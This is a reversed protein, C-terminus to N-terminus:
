LADLVQAADQKGGNPRITLNLFPIYKLGDDHNAPDYDPLGRKFGTQVTWGTFCRAVAQIDKLSYGSKVGLTHLELLERAYNENAVGNRNEKNDLYTLMAPSHACGTLMEEFNGLVHPRLVRETDIPVLSRGELKLAYINFHNTWF